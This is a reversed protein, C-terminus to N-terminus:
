IIPTCDNKNELFFPIWSYFNGKLYFKIVHNTYSFFNIAYIKFMLDKLLNDNNPYNIGILIKLINSQINPCCKRLLFNSLM